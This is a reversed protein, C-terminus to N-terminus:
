RTPVMEDPGDPGGAEALADLGAKARAARGALYEVVAARSVRRHTSVRESPIVGDDLLKVLTPRSVRLLDAAQGTTMLDPLRVVGVHDGASLGALLQAFAERTADGLELSQAGIVLTQASPLSQGLRAADAPAIDGPGLLAVMGAMRDVM